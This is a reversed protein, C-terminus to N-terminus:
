PQFAEPHELRLLELVADRFKDSTARDRFEIWQRYIPKGNNDLRDTGDRNTQKQAPMAIWFGGQKAMLRLEHLVLGSALELSFFAILSGSSRPTWKIVRMM